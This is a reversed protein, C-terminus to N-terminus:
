DEKPSAKELLNEPVEVIEKVKIEEVIEIVEDSKEINERIGSTLNNSENLLSMNEKVVSINEDVWEVIIKGESKEELSENMGPAVVVIVILLMLLLGLGLSIKKKVENGSFETGDSMRTLKESMKALNKQFLKERDEKELLVM